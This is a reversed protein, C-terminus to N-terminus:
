GIDGSLAAVFTEITGALNAEDEAVAFGVPREKQAGCSRVREVTLPQETWETHSCRTNFPSHEGVQFIFAYNNYGGPRGFYCPTLVYLGGRSVFPEHLGGCSEAVFELDFQSLRTFERVSDDDQAIGLNMTPIKLRGKADWGAIAIVRNDSHTVGALLGDEMSFYTRLTTETGGVRFEGTAPGIMSDFSNLPTSLSAQRMVKDLKDWEGPKVEQPTVQAANAPPQQQQQQNHEPRYVWILLVSVVLFYVIILVLIIFSQNRGIPRVLRNAVLTRYFVFALLLALGPLGLIKLAQDSQLFTTIVSM